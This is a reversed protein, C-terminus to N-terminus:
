TTEKSLEIVKTMGTVADFVEVHLIPHARKIALGAEEAADHTQYSAKAQRDVQLRFQGPEPRKRQGLPEHTPEGLSASGESTNRIAMEGENAKDVISRRHAIDL